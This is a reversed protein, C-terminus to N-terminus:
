DLQEAATCGPRGKGVINEGGDIFVLEGRAARKGAVRRVVQILRGDVRDVGVPDGIPLLIPVRGEGGVIAVRQVGEPAADVVEESGV